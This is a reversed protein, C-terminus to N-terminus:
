DGSFVIATAFFSLFFAFAIRPEGTVWCALVPALWAAVAAIGENM